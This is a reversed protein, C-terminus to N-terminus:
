GWDMIIDHMPPLCKRKMSLPCVNIEHISLPSMSNEISPALSNKECMISALIYKKALGLALKKKFCAGHSDLPRERVLICLPPM